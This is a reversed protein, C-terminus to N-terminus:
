AVRARRFIPSQYGLNRGLKGLRCGGGPCISLSLSLCVDLRDELVCEVFISMRGQLRGATVNGTLAALATLLNVFFLSLRKKRKKKKIFLCM